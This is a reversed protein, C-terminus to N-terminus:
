NPENQLEVMVQLRDVQRLLENYRDTKEAHASWIELGVMVLLIIFGTIVVLQTHNMRSLNDRSENKLRVTEEWLVRIQDPTFTKPIPGDFGLSSVSPDAPGTPGTPGTPGDQRLPDM